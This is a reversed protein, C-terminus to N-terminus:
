TGAHSAVHEARNWLVWLLYVFLCLAPLNIGVGCPATSRGLLLTTRVGFEVLVVPRGGFFGIVLQIGSLLKYTLLSSSLVPIQIGQYVASLAIGIRPKNILALGSIIGFLFLSACLLRFGWISIPVSTDSFTAILLSLGVFGGGVELIVLIYKIWKSIMNNRGFQKAPASPAANSTAVFAHNPERKSSTVAAVVIGAIAVLNLKILLYVNAEMQWGLWPTIAPGLPWHWFSNVLQNTKGPTFRTAMVLILQPLWWFMQLKNVLSPWRFHSVIIAVGLVALLLGIVTHVTYWRGSTFFHRFSSRCASAVLMMSIIAIYGTHFNSILKKM